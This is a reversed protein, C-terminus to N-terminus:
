GARAGDAAAVLEVRPLHGKELSHETVSEPSRVTITATRAERNCQVDVHGYHLEWKM